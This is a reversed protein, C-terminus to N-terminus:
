QRRRGRYIEEGAEERVEPRKQRRRRYTSRRRKRSKVPTTSPNTVEQHM